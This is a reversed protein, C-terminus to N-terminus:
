QLSKRMVKKIIKEFEDTTKDWSFGSSYRLANESLEKLRSGNRLLSIAAEAMNEPSNKVLLGTEKDKVSDRLGPVDYAIAPTGMANSETVVLGWGERVGPVLALHARKMLDHKEEDSIRGFFTVDSTSIKKLAEIMYGAGIVWMRVDPIEKKILSFAQVAHHPLKAKKLRGTFIITPHSEKKAINVLPEVSLGEPVLHIDSFGLEQLDRKSSESITITPIEKYYSLWKRELYYYGICNLPFPTEYFWFERAMQHFLAIVIKQRIFRPTLFPRTNIEDIIIDFDNHHKKCYQEAKRYVGYKGGDRLITVGDVHESLLCGSYESSFLTVLNGRSALRRAVEHTFLEAGGSEPNKIDRWNLWLIRMLIEIEQRANKL